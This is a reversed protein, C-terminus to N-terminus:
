KLLLLEFLTLVAITQVAFWLYILQEDLRLSNWANEVYTSWFIVNLAIVRTTPQIVIRRALRFARVM